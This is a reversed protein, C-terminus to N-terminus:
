VASMVGLNHCVSHIHASYKYSILEHSEIASGWQTTM